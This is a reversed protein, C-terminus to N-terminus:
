LVKGELLMMTADLAFIPRLLTMKLFSIRAMTNTKGKM